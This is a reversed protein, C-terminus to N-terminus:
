FHIVILLLQHIIVLIEKIVLSHDISLYDDWFEYMKVMPLHYEFDDILYDIHNNEDESSGYLLHDLIKESMKVM